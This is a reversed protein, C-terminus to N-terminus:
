IHKQSDVAPNAPARSFSRSGPFLLELSIEWVTLFSRLATAFGTATVPANLQWCQKPDLLSWVEFEEVSNVLIAAPTASLKPNRAIGELLEHNREDPLRADLLLVFQPDASTDRDCVFRIELLQNATALSNPTSRLGQNRLASKIQGADDGYGEVLLIPGELSARPMGSPSAAQRASQEMRLLAAIEVISKRTCLPRSYPKKGSSHNEICSV